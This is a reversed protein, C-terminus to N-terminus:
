HKQFAVPFPPFIGNVANASGPNGLSLRLDLPLVFRSNPVIKALFQLSIFSIPGLPPVDRAGRGQIRWKVNFINQAFVVSKCSIVRRRIM